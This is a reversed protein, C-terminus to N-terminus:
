HYKYVLLIVVNILLILLIFSLCGMMSDVNFQFEGPQMQLDDHYTSEKSAEKKERGKIKLLKKISKIIKSNM